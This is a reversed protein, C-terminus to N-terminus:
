QSNDKAAAEWGFAWMLSRARCWYASYKFRLGARYAEYGAIWEHSRLEHHKEKLM